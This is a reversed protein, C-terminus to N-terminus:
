MAHRQSQLNERRARPHTKIQGIENIIGFGGPLFKPLMGNPHAWRARRKVLLIRSGEGLALGAVVREAGSGDELVARADIRPRESAM